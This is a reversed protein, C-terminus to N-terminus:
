TSEARQRALVSYITATLQEQPFPKILVPISALWSDVDDLDGFGYGTCMVLPISDDVARLEQLLKLGHVGPMVYDVLCMSLTEHNEQFLRLAEPGDRAELVKFGENLLTHRLLARITVEDDAILITRGDGGSDREVREIEGTHELSRPLYVAVRTGLEAQSSVHIAGDHNEM